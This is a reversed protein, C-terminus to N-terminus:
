SSNTGLLDNINKLLKTFEGGKEKPAISFHTIVSIILLGLFVFLSRGWNHIKSGLILSIIGVGVWIVFTFLVIKTVDNSTIKKM